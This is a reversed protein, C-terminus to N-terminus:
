PSMFLREVPGYRDNNDDPHGELQRTYKTIPKIQSASFETILIHTPFFSKNTM